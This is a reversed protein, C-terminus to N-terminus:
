GEVNTYVEQIDDNAELGEVIKTIKESVEGSVAVTQTPVMTLEAHALEVKAATLAHRVKEFNQFTTRVEYGEESTVVDEAGAELVLEMLKDEDIKSKEINIVGQKLFM